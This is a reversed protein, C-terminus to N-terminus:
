IKGIINIFWGKADYNLNTLDDSFDTFNYGIGVKLNQGFHRHIATLFGKRKDQATKVDLLRAEVLFDWHRIVHWDARVVYLNTTSDFWEGEERGQRIEGFKHAFKAGITWKATLDYNGDFAFVHSRQQYDYQQGSNTFQEAPALDYLYNYTALANFKDNDIPRYAFGLLAETYDSNLQDESSSNSIAFDIRLQARWDPNMKYSMNNRILYSDRQEENQEDKRYELASSYKFSQKAFGANLAISNRKITGQGTGELEGNEYSLGLTWRESPLFEIGYAHTLGVGSSGHQYREEGYVNVADTFRHRVGSVLQGNRGAM